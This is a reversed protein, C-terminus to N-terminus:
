LDWDEQERGGPDEEGAAAGRASAESAHATAERGRRQLREADGPLRAASAAGAGGGPVRVDGAPPEPLATPSAAGPFTTHPYM